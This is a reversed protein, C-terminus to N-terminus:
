TITLQETMDSETVGHIIAWWAGRNMSNELCSYQPIYGNGEGPARGSGPISGADGANCALKKLIQAEMTALSTFVERAATLRDLWNDFVQFSPTPPVGSQLWVRCFITGQATSTVPM